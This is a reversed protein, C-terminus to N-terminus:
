AFGRLVLMPRFDADLEGGGRVRATREDVLEWEAPGDLRSVYRCDDLWLGEVGEGVGGDPGAVLFANGTKRVLADSLDGQRVCPLRAPAARSHSHRGTTLPSVVMM